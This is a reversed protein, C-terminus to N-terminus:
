DLILGQNKCSKRLDMYSEIEKLWYTNGSENTQEFHKPNHKEGQMM